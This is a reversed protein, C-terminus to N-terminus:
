VAIVTCRWENIGICVSESYIITSVNVNDMLGDAKKLLYELYNKWAGSNDGIFILLGPINERETFDMIDPTSRVTEGIFRDKVYGTKIATLSTLCFTKLELLM